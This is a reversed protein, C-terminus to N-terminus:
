RDHDAHPENVLADLAKGLPSEAKGRPDRLLARRLVEAPCGYQLALSAAVASDRANIDSQSSPKSNTLFIEALDGNAFWGVTARYNLGNCELEFTQALRRNPLRTRSM